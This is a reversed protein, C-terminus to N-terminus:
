TDLPANQETREAYKKEEVALPIIKRVVYNESKLKKWALATRVTQQQAKLAFTLKDEETYKQKSQDVFYHFTADLIRAQVVMMDCLDYPANGHANIITQELSNTIAELTTQEQQIKLLHQLNAAALRLNETRVFEEAHEIINKM